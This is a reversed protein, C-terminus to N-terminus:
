SVARQNLGPESNDLMLSDNGVNQELVYAKSNELYQLSKIKVHKLM